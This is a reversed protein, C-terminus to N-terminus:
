HVGNLFEPPRHLDKFYDHKLAEKASIRQVPDLQLMRSILDIGSENLKPVISSWSQKEYYSFDPNYAPLNVVQPWSDVSPTGLIKFIRKLQDQESIGPFLPVGNIMEAFICGVSWIDVATSYKKSGMLVDPARYWLTVVEHTYSRVPIAFARALGFDALKLVGERNILLNQPKLDRHLIRHDHCYSIGRLIQYLFSKATTPELGGDCADLLKKLDQDLYEFVLTLCKESHIVDRLWVINPHHLEKLLSIERIATSPIGEDEEEVRIKKLACIEGHNNQAKYVVGYTGEGIKEMKHYRRM